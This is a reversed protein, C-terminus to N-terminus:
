VDKEGHWIFLTTSVRYLGPEPDLLHLENDLRISAVHTDGMAGRFDILSARLAKAVTLAEFFSKAYSDFQFLDRGIDDQACLTGGIQEVIKSFVLYPSRVGQPAMVAYVRGAILTELTADATLQTTLGEEIM